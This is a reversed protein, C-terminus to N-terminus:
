ETIVGGVVRRKKLFAEDSTVIFVNLTIHGGAVVNSNGTIKQKGM